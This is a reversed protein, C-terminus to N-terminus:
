SIHKWREGSRIKYVTIRQIRFEDALEQAGKDSHKILRVEEDGLLSNGNSEGKPIRNNRIADDINDRRTGWALNEPRNDTRIDNLHRCCEAGDPKPGHFASCVLHHVPKIVRGRSVCVRLYRRSEFVICRRGYPPRRLLNYVHGDVDAEYGPFGPIPRREKKPSPQIIPIHQHSKGTTIRWATSRGVKYKKALDSMNAGQSYLYRMRAVQRDTLIVRKM